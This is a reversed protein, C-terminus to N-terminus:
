QGLDRCCIVLCIAEKNEWPHHLINPFSSVFFEEVTFIYGEEFCELCYGLFWFWPSQGLNAFDQFFFLVFCSSLKLMWNWHLYNSSMTEFTLYISRPRLFVFTHTHTKYQDLCIYYYQLSLFASCFVIVKSSPFMPVWIPASQFSSALNHHLWWPTLSGVAPSCWEWHILTAKQLM